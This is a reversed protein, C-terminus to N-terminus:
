IIDEGKKIRKYAIKLRREKGKEEIYKNIEQPTASSLFKVFESKRM